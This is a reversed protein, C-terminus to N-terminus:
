GELGAIILWTLGSAPARHVGEAGLLGLCLPCELSLALYSPDSGPVPDAPCLVEQMSQQVQHGGWVWMAPTTYGM